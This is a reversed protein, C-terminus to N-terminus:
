FLIIQDTKRNTTRKARKKTRKKKATPIITEAPVNTTPKLTTTKTTTSITVTKSITETATIMEMLITPICTTPSAISNSTAFQTTKLNNKASLLSPTIGIADTIATKTSIKM